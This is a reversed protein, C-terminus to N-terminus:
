VNAAGMKELRRIRKSVGPQFKAQEKFMKLYSAMDYGKSVAYADAEYEMEQGKGFGFATQLAYFKCPTHGKKLHGVEHALLAELMAQDMQTAPTNIVIVGSPTAVANPIHHSGSNAFVYLDDLYISVGDLSGINQTLLYSPNFAVLRASTLEQAYKLYDKIKNIM